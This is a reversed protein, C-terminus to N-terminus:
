GVAGPHECASYEIPQRVLLFFESPYPSTCLQARAHELSRGPLAHVGGASVPRQVECLKAFVHEALDSTASALLVMLIASAEPYQLERTALQQILANAQQQSISLLFPKWHYATLRDDLLKATV